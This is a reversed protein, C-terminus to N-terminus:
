KYACKFTPTKFTCLHLAPPLDDPLSILKNKACYLEIITPPLGSLSTLQNGYCYLHTLRPPIKTFSTLDNHECRLIRLQDFRSLDPLETLGMDSIDIDTTDDPLSKLYNEVITQLMKTHPYRELCYM